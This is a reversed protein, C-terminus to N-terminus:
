FGKRQIVGILPCQVRQSSKKGVTNVIYFNKPPTDGAGDTPTAAALLPPPGSLFKALRIQSSAM